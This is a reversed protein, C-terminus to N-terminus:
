ENIIKHMERGEASLIELMYIGKPWHGMNVTQLSSGAEFRLSEIRKGNLNYVNVEAGQALDTAKLVLSGGNNGFSIGNGQAGMPLLGNNVTTINEIHLEFRYENNPVNEFDYPGWNLDHTKNLLHDHLLIKYTNTLLSDELEISYAEFAKTSVFRLPLKRPRINNPGYDIANIALEANQAVSMLSPNGVDNLRKPADWESDNGDQTGAVMALLFKDSKAPNYKEAVNLFFRDVITNQAKFFSPSADVTGHTAMSLTGLSPSNGSSRVWFAGMPPIVRDVLDAVAGSFSSYSGSGANYRSFSNNMNQRGGLSGFDLGCPFPNSVLNWGQNGTSGSHIVSPAANSVLSGTVALTSPAAAVGNTGFYVVYGRGVEHDISGDEVNVWQTADADWYFVNQTNPHVDTGVTGLVGVTASGSLPLGINRWGASPIYQEVTTTGTGSISGNVKLQAYGTADANLVLSGNNTLDTTVTLENGPNVSLTVSNNITVNEVTADVDLTVNHAIVVDDGSTPPTGGVWTAGTNWNGPAASTIASSPSQLKYLVFKRQNSTYCAFRPSSANYQLIRGPVGLNEVIFEDTSFTFAWRQNDASVASVVQVNNSSGTYSVYEDNDASQITRGGGNTEILWVITTAPDVLEDSSPTVSTRDLYTGNHTNNMAFQENKELIVYYGDTLEVLSNIKEFTGVGTYSDSIDFTTTSTVDMVLGDSATLELGTGVATHTLTSFTALGSDATATVPSGTLTGTSTIDIDLNYDTDRNGNADVAEVTVAPSMAANVQANTPQQVFALATYDVDVIINNGEVSGLFLTSTFGSGAVDAVFGHGTAPISFDLIGGDVINSTNLYVYLTLVESSGDNIVLNGSSIPIIIESDSITAAGITVFGTGDHLRVGQIFNTWDATNGSGPVVRVQTVITNLGDGSGQDEIEFAFVNTASLSTTFNAAIITKGVVQGVPGFVETDADNPNTGTGSVAVNISTAGTSSLVINDSAAGAIGPTFRAYVTTASVSGGVQTLTRSSFWNADDLSVEFGAPATITINATLDSGAVTFSSSTSSNGVDVSGFAGNFGILNETITPTALVEIRTVRWDESSVGGAVEDYVLAIFATGTISSADVISTTYGSLTSSNSTNAPNFTLDTWTALTPDGSGSYNTSYRVEFEGAQNILDGFRNATEIRIEEGSQADFDITFGSILWDVDNLPGSSTFGNMSYEGGSCIWSDEAGGGDFTIWQATGCNAFDESYPLSLTPVDDDTITITHVATSITVGTSTNETITLEITEDDADADANIDINVNQTGNANFTLQTTNLTYDSPEASGGTVAVDLIVQQSWNSLTVPIDVDFTLNTENVSSTPSNWGVVPSAASGNMTVSIDDIGYPDRNNSGSVDDGSWRLYYSAGNALLLGTISTSRSTSVWGDSDAAAPSTFDLSGVNTYSSNDSSHSFNFSNSRAQNNNVLVNYSVDISTVTAGTNNTIFLTLTGPTWDSGGPRIGLIVDGSGIDWAYFGGTTGTQSTGRAHDGTINATGFGKNGDSMGTTAWADADLDGTAPTTAFGTGDYTGNNVGSVTNEFDVVQAVGTTTFNMQGWGKFGLLLSVLLLIAKFPKIRLIAKKASFLQKERMM